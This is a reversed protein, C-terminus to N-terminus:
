QAYLLCTVKGSYEPNPINLIASRFCRINKLKNTTRKINKASFSIYKGKKPSSVLATSVHRHFDKNRLDTELSRQAGQSKTNWMLRCPM